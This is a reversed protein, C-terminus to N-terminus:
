RLVRKLDCIICNGDVFCAFCSVRRYKCARNFCKIAIIAKNDCLLNM